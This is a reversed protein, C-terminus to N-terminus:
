QKTAEQSEAVAAERAAHMYLAYLAKIGVEMHFDTHTHLEKLAVFLTAIVRGIDDRECGCQQAISYAVARGVAQDGVIEQIQVPVNILETTIDSLDEDTLLEALDMYALNDESM